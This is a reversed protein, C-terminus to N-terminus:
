RLDSVDLHRGRRAVRRDGPLHVAGQGSWRTVLADMAEVHRWTVSGPPSGALGGLARLARTRVADPLAALDAVAWPPSGLDAVAAAALDDLADADARLQGASRALAAAVGPGLRQEADDILARARARAFADDDNMPDDWIPLGWAQAAARTTARDVGLLPRRYRGRRSPMGSLSRAGSGRLLGLLVQEAQDNLTHGLLVACAGSSEAAADLAAYRAARAAAELGDAAVRVEVAVVEVPELGLERCTRAADEAVQASDAALGHDVVVAGARLGAARAEYATGAALALSDPGGSCAVLVLAPEASPDSVERVVDALVRRVASRVDARAPHLAM